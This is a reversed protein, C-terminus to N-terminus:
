EIDKSLIENKRDKYKKLITQFDPFANVLRKSLKSKASLIARVKKSIEDTSDKKVTNAVLKFNYIIKFSVIVDIMFLILSSYTLIKLLIFPIKNLLFIFVPNTIYMILLGGFGFQVLTELCVRGNINFKNNSYDWWRTKFIKEMIYSTFYELFGCTVTCMIFLTIPDNLYKWLFLTMIISGFGYIPCWPGVLFGRNVIKHQEILFVGEEILWGCLSYIIFLLILIYISYM